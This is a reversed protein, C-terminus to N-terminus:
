FMLFANFGLGTFISPLHDSTYAALATCGMLRIRSLDLIVGFNICQGIRHAVMGDASDVIEKLVHLGAVMRPYGLVHMIPYLVVCVAQAYGM